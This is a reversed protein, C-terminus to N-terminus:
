NFQDHFNYYLAVQATTLSPGSHCQDSGPINRCKLNKVKPGFCSMCDLSASSYIFVSKEVFSRGSYLKTRVLLCFKQELENTSFELGSFFKAFSIFICNSPIANDDHSIKKTPM